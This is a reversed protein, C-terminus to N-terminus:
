TDDCMARHIHLMDKVKSNLLLDRNPYFCVQQFEGVLLVCVGRYQVTYFWSDHPCQQM